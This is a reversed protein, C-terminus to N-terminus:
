VHEEHSPLKCMSKTLPCRPLHCTRTIILQPWPVMVRRIRLQTLILVLKAGFIKCINQLRRSGNRARGPCSTNSICPTSRRSPAARVKLSSSTSSSLVWSTAALSFMVM